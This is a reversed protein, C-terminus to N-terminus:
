ILLITELERHKNDVRCYNDFKRGDPFRKECATSAQAYTGRCSEVIYKGNIWPMLVLINGWVIPPHIRSHGRVGKESFM